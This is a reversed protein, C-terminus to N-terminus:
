SPKTTETILITTQGCRSPAFAPHLHSREVTKEAIMGGPLEATLLWPNKPSSQNIGVIYVAYSLASVMVLATGTLSLTSGDATKYLLGSGKHEKAAKMWNKLASESVGLNESAKRLPLEPHDLRYRVADEKFQQSYKTGKAM